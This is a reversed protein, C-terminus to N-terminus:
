YILEVIREYTRKMEEHRPIGAEAAEVAEKAYLAELESWHEVLPQWTPFAEAVEELRPRWEPIKQLLRLCRGLDGADYPISAYCIAAAPVNLMVGAITRSSLGTDEGFLWEIARKTVDDIAPVQKTNKGSM